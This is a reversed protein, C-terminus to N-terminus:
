SKGEPADLVQVPYGNLIRRTQRVVQGALIGTAGLALLVIIQQARPLRRDDALDLWFRVYGLFFLYAAMSGLTAAYILPLSLRLAAAVIVLFYLLMLMTWPDRGLMLLLTILLIDWATAVFKLAPPCYRRALLFHLIVVEAAWALVLLTVTAHYTGEPTPDDRVLYVNILHHGYFVVLAILRILNVRIEGAWGELRQADAWKAAEM